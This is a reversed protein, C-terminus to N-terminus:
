SRRRHSARSVEHQPARPPIPGNPLQFGAVPFRNQRTSASSLTAVWLLILLDGRIRFPIDMRVQERAREEPQRHQQTRSSRRRLGGNVGGALGGRRGDRALCLRGDALGGDRLLDM